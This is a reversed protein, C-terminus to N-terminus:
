PECESQLLHYTRGEEGQPGDQGPLGACEPVEHVGDRLSALREDCQFNIIRVHLKDYEFNIYNEPIYHSLSEGKLM